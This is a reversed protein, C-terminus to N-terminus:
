LVAKPMKRSALADFKQTRQFMEILGGMGGQTIARGGFIQVADDAIEGACRTCFTKLLGIPGALQDAQQAYTMQCMQYASEDPSGSNTAPRRQPPLAFPWFRSINELYAQAAEVKMFMAALKARIVAQDILPKGFAKRQHAWKFCRLVLDLIILPCRSVLSFFDSLSRSSWAAPLSPVAACSGASTASALASLDISDDYSRFNFNSLIVFIGKGEKGLLNEVPVKVNDFTVYATGATTSYSTKIQKTDVGEGRPILLMSLGNGTNVGTSFYDAFHGRQRHLAQWRADQDRHDELGRRRIWRLGASSCTLRAGRHVVPSVFRVETIALCIFKRGALVEPIIEKKLKDSGFNMIPPLGIVMGGQLGDAYGRAGCRSLEQTIIMEHFYDFEDGKVGGPLTLGHLLKTPGMRMANIHMSGMKQILEVTPRKGDREHLQADPRVHEDVFLRMEKQLARHSDKHYPSKYGESLWTPEAYPVPSLTGPTPLLIRPKQGEITGILYRGYKLLVESRHMGFFAETADQGAVQILVHAGGPHLDVFKSLDYVASDIIIWLDGEKNHKAVEDKSFAKLQDKKAATDAVSLYKTKSPPAIASM